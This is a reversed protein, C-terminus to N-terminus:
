RMATSPTSPARPAVTTAITTALRLARLSRASAASFNVLCNCSNSSSCVRASLSPRCAQYCALGACAPHAPRVTTPLDVDLDVLGGVQTCCSSSAIPSSLASTARLVATPSASSRWLPGRTGARASGRNIAAASKETPQEPSPGGPVGGHTSAPHADMPVPGAEVVAGVADGVRRIAGCPGSSEVHGPAPNIPVSLIIRNPKHTSSRASARHRDGPVPNSGPPRATGPSGRPVAGWSHLRPSEPPGSRRPAVSGGGALARMICRPSPQFHASSAAPAASTISAHRPSCHHEARGHDASERGDAYESDDVSARAPGHAQADGHCIAGPRQDGRADARRHRQRVGVSGGCQRRRKGTPARM